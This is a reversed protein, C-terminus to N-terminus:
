LFLDKKSIDHGKVNEKMFQFNCFDFSFYILSEMKNVNNQCILIQIEAM